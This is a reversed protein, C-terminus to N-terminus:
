ANTDGDKGPQKTDPWVPAHSPPPPPITPQPIQSTPPTPPTPPAAPPTPPAPPPTPPAPPTPSSALPSPASQTLTNQDIVNEAQKEQKGADEEARLDVFLMEEGEEKELPYKHSESYDIGYKDLFNKGSIYTNSTRKKIEIAGMQETNTLEVGIVQNESDFYLVAFRFQDVHFRNVSGSNFGIQGTRQRITVKSSFSSDTETFKEFKFKSM